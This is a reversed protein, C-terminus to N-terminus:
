PKAEETEKQKSLREMLEKLLRDRAEIEAQLRKVEDKAGRKKQAAKEEYHRLLQAVKENYEKLLQAKKERYEEWLQAVTLNYEIKKTERTLLPAQIQGFVLNERRRLKSAVADISGEKFGRERLERRIQRLAKDARLLEERLTESIGPLEGRLTM